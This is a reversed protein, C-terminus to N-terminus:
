FVSGAVLIRTTVLGATYTKILGTAADGRPYLELAKVVMRTRQELSPRRYSVRKWGDIKCNSDPWEGRPQSERRESTPQWRFESRDWRWLAGDGLNSLVSLFRGSGRLDLGHDAIRTRLLTSLPCQFPATSLITTTCYRGGRSM